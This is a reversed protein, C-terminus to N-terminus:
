RRVWTEFRYRPGSKGQMWDSQKELRWEKEDPMTFFVSADPCEADIRTLELRSAQPMAQRYVEGGGIVFVVPEARLAHIADELSTFVEADPVSFVPDRSIIVNRRGPLAGHPLSQWTRRGMLVPCSMTTEKFHRLDGPLHWIMGGRRGIAGDNAAAVIIVIESARREEKQEPQTMRIELSETEAGLAQKIPAEVIM